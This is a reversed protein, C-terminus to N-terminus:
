KSNTALIEFAISATLSDDGAKTTMKYAIDEITSESSEATLTCSIKPYDPSLGKPSEGM